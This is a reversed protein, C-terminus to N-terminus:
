YVLVKSICSTHKVVYGRNEKKTGNLENLALTKYYNNYVKAVCFHKVIKSDCCYWISLVRIDPFRNKNAKPIVSPSIYSIFGSCRNESIISMVLILSLICRASSLVCSSGMYFLLLECYSLCVVCIISIDSM